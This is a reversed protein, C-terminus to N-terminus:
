LECQTNKISMKWLLRGVLTYHLISLLPPLLSIVPYLMLILQRLNTLFLKIKGPVLPLFIASGSSRFMGTMLSRRTTAQKILDADPWISKQFWSIKHMVGLYSLLGLLGLIILAYVTIHFNVSFGLISMRQWFKRGDNKRNIWYCITVGLLSILVTVGVIVWAWNNYFAIDKDMEALHPKFSYEILQHGLILTTFMIISSIHILPSLFIFFRSKWKSIRETKLEEVLKNMDWLFM